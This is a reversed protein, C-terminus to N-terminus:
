KLKKSISKQWVPLSKLLLNKTQEDQLPNALTTIDEQFKTLGELAEAKNLNPDKFILLGEKNYFYKLVVDYIDGMQSFLPCYHEVVRKPVESEKADENKMNKKYQAAQLLLDREDKLHARMDNKEIDTAAKVLEDTTNKIKIAALICEGLLTLNDDIADLSKVYANVKPETKEHLVYKSKLDKLETNKVRCSSLLSQTTKEHLIFTDIKKYDKDITAMFKNYEAQFGEVNIGVIKSEAVGGLYRLAIVSQNELMCKKINLDVKNKFESILPGLANKVDRNSDYKDLRERIQIYESILGNFNRCCKDVNKETDEKAKKGGKEADTKLKAAMEMTEAQSMLLKQDKTNKKSKDTQYLDKFIIEDNELNLLVDCILQTNEARYETNRLEEALGDSIKYRIRQSALTKANSPDRYSKISNKLAKIEKKLEEVTRQQEQIVKKYQERKKIQMYPLNTDGPLFIKALIQTIIQSLTGNIKMTKQQHQEMIRIESQYDAINYTENYRKVMALLENSRQLYAESLNLFLNSIRNWSELYVDRCFNLEAVFLVAKQEAQAAGNRDRSLRQLENLDRELPQLEKYLRALLSDFEKSLEPLNRKTDKDVTTKFSDQLILADQSLSKCREIEKSLREIKSVSPSSKSFTEATTHSELFETELSVLNRSIDLKTRDFNFLVEQANKVVSFQNALLDDMYQGKQILAAVFDSKQTYREPGAFTLNDQKPLLAELQVGILVSLPKTSKLPSASRRQPSIDVGASLRHTGRVNQPSASRYPSQLLAPDIPASGQLNPNKNPSSKVKEQPQGNQKFINFFPNDFFGGEEKKQPQEVYDPGENFISRQGQQPSARGQNQIPSGRTPDLPYDNIQNRNQYASTGYATDSEYNRNPFITLKNQPQSRRAAEIEESTAQQKMPSFIINKHSSRPQYDSQYQNQQYAPPRNQSYNLELPSSGPSQSRNQVDIPQPKIAQKQQSLSLNDRQYNGYSSQYQYDPALNNPTRRDIPNDDFRSPTRQASRNYTNQYQYEDQHYYQDQYQNNHYPSNHISGQM